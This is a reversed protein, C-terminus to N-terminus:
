QPKQWNGDAQRQIPVPRTSALQRHNKFADATLTPFLIRHVGENFFAEPNPFALGKDTGHASFRVFEGMQQDDSFVHMPPSLDSSRQDGAYRLFGIEVPEPPIPRRDEICWRGYLQQSLEKFTGAPRAATGSPNPAVSTVELDVSAAQEDPTSGASSQDTEAVPEVPAATPAPEEAKHEPAPPKSVLEDFRAPSPAPRSIGLQLKALSNLVARLKEVQFVLIALLAAILALLGLPAYEILEQMM